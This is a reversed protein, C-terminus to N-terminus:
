SVQNPYQRKLILTRKSPGMTRSDDTQAFNIAYQVFISAALFFRVGSDSDACEIYKSEVIRSKTKRRFHIKKSTVFHVFYLKKCSQNCIARIHFSFSFFSSWIRFWRGRILWVWRTEDTDKSSFFTNNYLGFNIRFIASQLKCVLPPQRPRLSMM